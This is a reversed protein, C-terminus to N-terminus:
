AALAEAPEASPRSEACVQEFFAVVRRAQRRWSFENVVKQQIAAGRRELEARPTRTLRNLETALSREFHHPDFYNAEPGLVDEVGSLKSTLIARGSLAYDFLKSAFNNQNGHTAPRPNVLVDCQRGFRLCEAPTLLGHFHLRSTQGALATLDGAGKGYGCIDLVTDRSYRLFVQAMQSIGAHAGLSGYYGFHIPGTPQPFESRQIARSPNCGGPLWLFPVHRPTFYQETEKSLGVCADFYKLMQEDPVHLPKLAHRVRKLWPLQRGLNASDLLWLILRPRRGSRRLWRVFQNYIPSLNYVFVVDPVWGSASWHRYLAKLRSISVMRHYIEPTKELLLLEHQIGTAPDASEVQPVEVPLVGASRIDFYNRLEAVLQTELAHGAPNIDPHLAQIGPPFAFGLYLLRAASYSM